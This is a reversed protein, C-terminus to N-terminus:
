RVVLRCSFDVAPQKTKGHVRNIPVNFRTVDGNALDIREVKLPESQQDQGQFAMRLNAAEKEHFSFSGDRERATIRYLNIQLIKFNLEREALEGM